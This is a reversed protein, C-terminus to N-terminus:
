DSSLNGYRNHINKDSAKEGCYSVLFHFLYNGLWPASIVCLVSLKFFFFFVLVGLSM